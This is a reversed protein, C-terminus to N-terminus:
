QSDDVNTNEQISMRIPGRTGDSGVIIVPTGTEVQHYLWQMDEDSPAVCGDTWDYGRGGRGHVEILGGVGAGPPVEGRRRAEQYRQRDESNPYDILLALGYITAGPGKKRAIRYRGEPTVRDGEHRKPDITNAGLDVPLSRVLRGNRYLDLRHLEKIVVVVPGRHNQLAQDIWSQWQRVMAPDDYRALLALSHNKVRGLADLSDRGSRLAETYQEERYLVRAAQSRMEAVALHRRTESDAAAHRSLNLVRGMEEDLLRLMGAAAEQDAQRRSRVECYLYLVRSETITLLRRASRYDRQFWWRARQRNIECLSAALEVGCLRRLAPAYARAGLGDAVRLVTRIGAGQADPPAVLRGDLRPLAALVLIGALGILLLRLLSKWSHGNSSFM